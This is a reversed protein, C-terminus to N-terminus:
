KTLWHGLLVLHFVFEIKKSKRWNKKQSNAFTNTSPHIRTAKLRVFYIITELSDRSYSNKPRALHNHCAFYPPSDWYILLWFFIWHNSQMKKCCWVDWTRWRILLDNKQLFLNSTYMAWIRHMMIYMRFTNKDQGILHKTATARIMM